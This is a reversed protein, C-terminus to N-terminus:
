KAHKKSDVFYGWTFGIVYVGTALWKMFWDRM